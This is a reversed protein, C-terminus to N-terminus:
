ERDKKFEYLSTVVYGDDEDIRWEVSRRLYRDVLWLCVAGVVVVGAIAVDRLDGSLIALPTM